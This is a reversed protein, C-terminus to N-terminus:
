PVVFLLFRPSFGRLFTGTGEKKKRNIICGKHIKKKTREHAGGGPLCTLKFARQSTFRLSLSLLPIFFPVFVRLSIGLRLQHGLVPKKKHKKKNNQSDETQDADARGGERETKKRTTKTQSHLHTHTQTDSKYKMHLTGVKGGHYATKYYSEKKQEKKKKPLTLAHTQHTPASESPKVHTPSVLSLPSFGALLPCATPARTLTLPLLVEGSRKEGAKQESEKETKGNTQFFLLLSPPLPHPSSQLSRFSFLFRHVCEALFPQEAEEGGM